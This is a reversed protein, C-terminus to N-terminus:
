TGEFNVSLLGDANSCEPYGARIHLAIYCGIYSSLDRWLLNICYILLNHSVHLLHLQLPPLRTISVINSTSIHTVFTFRAPLLASNTM